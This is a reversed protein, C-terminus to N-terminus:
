SVHRVAGGKGRNRELKVVRIENEGGYEKKFKGAYELAIESTRDKSGDDVILIEYSRFKEILPSRFEDEAASESPVKGVLSEGNKRLDELYKVAEDLMETLRDEENYAPIIM